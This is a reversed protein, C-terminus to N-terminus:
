LGGQLTLVRKKKLIAVIEDDTLPIHKDENEILEKILDMVVNTSLM